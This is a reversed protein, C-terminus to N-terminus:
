GQDDWARYTMFMAVTSMLTLAIGIAWDYRYNFVGFLRIASFVLPSVIWFIAMVYFSLKLIQKM